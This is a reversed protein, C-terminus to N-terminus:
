GRPTHETAYHVHIERRKFLWRGDRKVLEDHYAGATWSALGSKKSRSNATLYCRASARDGDVDILPTSVVHRLHEANANVSQGYRQYWGLIAARGEVPAEGTYLPALTADEAFLNAIKEAEGADVAFCYRYLLQEIEVIDSTTM